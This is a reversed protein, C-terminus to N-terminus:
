IYLNLEPELLSYHFEEIWEVGGEAKTYIYKKHPELEFIKFGVVRKEESNWAYYASHDSPSYVIADKNRNFFNVLSGGIDTQNVAKEEVMDVIDGYRNKPFPKTDLYEKLIDPAFAGYNTLALFKLKTM